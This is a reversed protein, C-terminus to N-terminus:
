DPLDLEEKDEGVGYRPGEQRDDEVLGAAWKYDAKGSSSRRVESAIVV